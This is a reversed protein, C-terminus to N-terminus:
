KHWTRPANRQRDDEGTVITAAPVLSFMMWRVRRLDSADETSDLETLPVDAVEGCVLDVNVQQIGHTGKTGEIGWGSGPRVLQGRMM